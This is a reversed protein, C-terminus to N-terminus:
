EEVEDEQTDSSDKSSRVRDRAAALLGNLSNAREEDGLQRIEGRLWFKELSEVQRLINALRAEDILSYEALLRVDNAFTASQSSPRKCLALRVVLEPLTGLEVALASDALREQAQYKFLVYSMYNPDTRLRNALETMATFADELSM